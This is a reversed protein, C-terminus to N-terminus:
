ASLRMLLLRAERLSRSIPDLTLGFQELTLIGILPVVDTPEGLIVPTHGDGFEFEVYCESMARRIMTNDALAFDRVRKPQIGLRTWIAHPLLTYQAGSDILFEVTVSDGGPHARVHGTIYTLGVRGIDATGQV